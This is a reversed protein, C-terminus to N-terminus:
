GRPKARPSFQDLATRLEQRWSDDTKKAARSVSSASLPRCRTKRSCITFLRILKRVTLDGSAGFLVISCQGTHRRVRSRLARRPLRRDQIKRKLCPAFMASTFSFKLSKTLGPFASPLLPPICFHAPFGNGAKQATRRSSFISRLFGCFVVFFRLLFLVFSLPFVDFM